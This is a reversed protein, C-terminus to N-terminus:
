RMTELMLGIYGFTFPLVGLTIFGLILWLVPQGIVLTWFGWGRRQAVRRAMVMSVRWIAAAMLIAILFVSVPLLVSAIQVVTEDLAGVLHAVVLGGFVVTSIFAVMVVGISLVGGAYHSIALSRSRQRESLYAPTFWYTHIATLVEFFLWYGLAYGVALLFASLPIRGLAEGWTSDPMFALYNILAGGLSLLIFPVYILAIVIRRFLVADKLSVPQGVALCFQKTKFTVRWCTRAFAKVRGIERRNQWPVQALRMSAEDVAMGCEPCETADLNHINYGCQPCYLHEDAQPMVAQSTPTPTPTQSTTVDAGPM